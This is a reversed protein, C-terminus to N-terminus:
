ELAKERLRLLLHEKSVMGILKKGDGVVFVCTVKVMEFLVYIHEMPTKEHATFPFANVPLQPEKAVDVSTKLLSTLKIRNEEEKSVSVTKPRSSNTLKLAVQALRSMVGSSSSPRKHAEAAASLAAAELPRKKRLFAAAASAVVANNEGVLDPMSRASYPSKPSTSSCMAAAAADDGNGGGGSGGVAAASASVTSTPTIDNSGSGDNFSARPKHLSLRQYLSKRGPRGSNEAASDGSNNAGPVGTKKKQLPVDQGDVNKSDIETGSASTSPSPEGVDVAGSPLAGSEPGHASTSSISDSNRREDSIESDKGEPDNRSEKNNDDNNNYKSNNTNTNHSAGESVSDLRPDTFSTRVGAPRAPIGTSLSLISGGGAAIVAAAAAANTTKSSAPADDATAAATASINGFVAAAASTHKDTPPSSPTIPEIPALKRPPAQNALPSSDFNDNSTGTSGGSTAGAAASPYLTTLEVHAAKDSTTSGLPSLPPLRTANTYANRNPSVPSSENNRNISNGSLDVGGTGVTSSENSDSTKASSSGFFSGSTNRQKKRLFANILLAAAAAEKEHQSRGDFDGGAAGAASASTAAPSQATSSAVSGTSTASPQLVYGGALNTTRHTTIHDHQSTNSDSKAAGPTVCSDQYNGIGLAAGVRRAFMIVMHGNSNRGAADDSSTNDGNASLTSLAALPNIRRLWRNQQKAKYRALKEDDERSDEPLTDRVYQALEHQAFTKKLYQFVDNRTISGILKRSDKNNVVPFILQNTSLLEFMDAITTLRTAAKADRDVIESAHSYGSSGMLLLQFSELGKNVMGQDYISLGSTKTVGSAVVAGILCPLLMELQGTLEIAIVAASITHTAGSVMAVAGVMAYGPLYINVSAGVVKQLIVGFLRGFIGGTLFLPTFMGAPIRLRAACVTLIWRLVFSIALGAERPMGEFFSLEQIDGTTFIDKVMAGSAVTTAGHMKTSYIVLATLLAMISAVINRHSENYPRVTLYWRQMTWLWLKSLYGVMLGLLVFLLFEWRLYPSTEIELDFVRIQTADERALLFVHYMVAGATAAMFSKWYNSILYFTSTVEVSFLLGGVPANFVSTLGVAASAAFIQKTLSPSDFIDGFEPIFKMLIYAICTAVHVLPGASGVSMGAGLVMITNCMRYVMIKFSVLRPYEKNTFDSALLAKTEPMGSGFVARSKSVKGLHSAGVVLLVTSACFLPLGYRWRTGNDGFNILRVQLEAIIGATWLVLGNVLGAVIGVIFLLVLTIKTLDTSEEINEEKGTESDYVSARRVKKGLSFLDRGFNVTRDQQNIASEDNLAADLHPGDISSISEKRRISGTSAISDRQRDPGPSAESASNTRSRNGRLTEILNTSLSRVNSLRRGSPSDIEM